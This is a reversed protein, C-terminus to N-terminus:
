LCHTQSKEMTILGECSVEKGGTPKSEVALSNRFALGHFLIQDSRLGQMMGKFYMHVIYTSDETTEVREHGM